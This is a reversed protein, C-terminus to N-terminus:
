LMIKGTLLLVAAGLGIRQVKLWKIKRNQKKIEADKIAIITIKDNIIQQDIELANEYQDARSEFENALMMYNVNSMNCSDLLQNTEQLQVFKVNANRLSEIPLVASTDKGSVELHAPQAFSIACLATLM